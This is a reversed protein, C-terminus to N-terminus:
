SRKRPIAAGRVWLACKALQRDTAPVAVWLTGEADLRYRRGSDHLASFEGVLEHLRESGVATLVEDWIRRARDHITVKKM